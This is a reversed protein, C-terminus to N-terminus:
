SLTQIKTASLDTLYRHLPELKEYFVVILDGPESDTLANKLGELENEAISIRDPLCGGGVAADFLLKAVEGKKRDRLDADEKIYLRQFSQACRRGVSEVAQNKRDGPMGIVGILRASGFGECSRIVEEYGPLNHGYDLM